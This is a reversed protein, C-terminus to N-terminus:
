VPFNRQPFSIMLQASHVIKFGFSNLNFASLQKVSSNNSFYMVFHEQVKLGTIGPVDYVHGQLVSATM